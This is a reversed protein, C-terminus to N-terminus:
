HKEGASPNTVIPRALISPTAVSTMTALPKNVLGDKKTETLIKKEENRLIAAFRDAYV